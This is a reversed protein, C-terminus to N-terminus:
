IKVGKEKNKLKKKFNKFILIPNIKKWWKKSM